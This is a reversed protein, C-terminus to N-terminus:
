KENSTKPTACTGCSDCAGCGAASGGIRVGLQNIWRAYRPQQLYQALRTRWQPAIRGLMYLGSFLVAGLIISWQVIDYLKM